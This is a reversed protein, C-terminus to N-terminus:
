GSGKSTFAARMMPALFKGVGMRQKEYWRRTAVHELYAQRRFSAVLKV